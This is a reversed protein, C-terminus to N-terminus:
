IINRSSDSPEYLLKYIQDQKEISRYVTISSLYNRKARVAQTIPNDSNFIFDSLAKPLTFTLRYSTSGTPFVSWQRGDNIEPNWTISVQHTPSESSYMIFRNPDDAKLVLLFPGNAMGVFLEGYERVANLYNELSTSFLNPENRDMEPNSLWIDSPWTDLNRRIFQRLQKLYRPRSSSGAIGSFAVEQNSATILHYIHEATQEIVSILFHFDPGSLDILSIRHALAMAVANKSFGSTSFIAYHYNYRKLLIKQENNKRDANMPFYNQNLDDVIGVASRVEGIGVPNSRCKAEVFLRIPFTFAPIWSLQGLVDAQHVGGRGIVNLGNGRNTLERTDQSQDVLLNYGTRRILYVLAEELLYGKLSEMSIRM